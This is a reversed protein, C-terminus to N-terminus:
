RFGEYEKEGNGHYRNSSSIYAAIIVDRVKVNPLVLPSFDFSDFVFAFKV